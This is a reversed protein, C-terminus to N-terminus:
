YINFRLKFEGLLIVYILAKHRDAYNINEGFIDDAGAAALFIAM